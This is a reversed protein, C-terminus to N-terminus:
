AANRQEILQDILNKCEQEAYSIDKVTEYDENYNPFDMVMDKRVSSKVEMMSKLKRAPEGETFYKKATAFDWKDGYHGCDFGLWKDECVHDILKAVFGHKDFFTIGGHVDFDHEGEKVNMAPDDHKVAVYGCRIGIDNLTILYDYGKYVGGHEICISDYPKNAQLFEKDGKLELIKPICSM